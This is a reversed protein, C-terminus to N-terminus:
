MISDQSRMLEHRRGESQLLDLNGFTNWQLSKSLWLFNGTHSTEKSQIRSSVVDSPMAEVNVTSNGHSGLGSM